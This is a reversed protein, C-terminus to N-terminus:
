VRDFLGVVLEGLGSILGAIGIGPLIFAAQRLVSFAKGAGSAVKNLEPPIKQISVGLNDFGAKGINGVRTIELNLAAIEKNTM